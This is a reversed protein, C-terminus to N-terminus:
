NRCATAGTSWSPSRARPTTWRRARCSAWSRTLRNAGRRWCPQMHTHARAHLRTRTCHLSPPHVRCLTHTRQLLARCPRRHAPSLCGRVCALPTTYECQLAVVTDAEFNAKKSKGRPVTAKLAEELDLGADPVALELGGGFGRRTEALEATVRALEARFDDRTEASAKGWDPREAVHKAYVETLQAELLALADGALEGTIIAGDTNPQAYPLLRAPSRAPPRAEV